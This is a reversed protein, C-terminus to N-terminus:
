FQRRAADLNEGTPQKPKWYSDRAGSKIKLPDGLWGVFIGFPALAVFYLGSLIVRSQFGGVARAFTKWGDWASPLPRSAGPPGCRGNEDGPTAHKRADDPTRKQLRHLAFAIILGTVTWLAATRGAEFGSILSIFVGSWCLLIAAFDPLGPHPVDSRSARKARHGLAAGTSFGALTVLLLALLRFFSM